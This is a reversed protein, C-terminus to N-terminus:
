YNLNLQVFSALLPDVDKNIKDYIDRFGEGPLLASVGFLVIVNNNLFPRYEFGVSPDIGIFHHVNGQYIFQKLVDTKDFFLANVNNVMRLKPTLEFDIGANILRLGPNVFNSQGEIKSSRLDPLLSGRNTLNVGLLPIAQSQWFSFEGGAFNPDDMIADFGTAHHNLPNGDGSAWFFSTRFRTWDRDYSLEVAAMGASIEQRSGAMPNLSDEGLAWYFAHNINLRDIHGDGAWGLYVVNLVHPTAVGVPDPRVLFSNQDFHFAENPDDHNYHVSFEVNYGPWIFDRRYYNAIFIDQGRDDFTNLESDTNKEAQRFYLINFEERDSLRTGFLRVARNVDSFIFGRFDSIFPQSGVRLSLIDFYPSTDALKTEFFYEELTFWSRFRSTGKLVNPNVVGLEDVDVLNLNFIPTLHIRWDDQKFGADGHSLDFSLVFFQEYVVQDPHGFFDLEFPRTTSEHGHAPTPVDQGEVFSISSATINVFTHDGIIPYDGKLVNQKYSDLLNGEVNPYDDLLAHGHGYRDWQPFGLRWRDEIPVFHSSEQTATPLIGSAGAFGLPPDVATRLYPPLDAAEAPQPPSPSTEVPRNLFSPRPQDTSPLNAEPSGVPPV